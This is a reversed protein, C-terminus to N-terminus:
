ASLHIRGVLHKAREKLEKQYVLPSQEDLWHEFTRTLNVIKRKPIYKKNDANVIHVKRHVGFQTATIDIIKGDYLNWCHNIGDDSVWGDFAAGEILAIDYGMKKSLIKLFYSSIACLGMLRHSDSVETKYKAFHEMEKRAAKAIVTIDNNM